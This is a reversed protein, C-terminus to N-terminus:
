PRPSESDPSPGEGPTSELVLEDGHVTIKLDYSAAVARAFSRSDGIRFIGGIPIAAAAPSAVTVKIKNYRSFEAAAEGLPTHDFILQGRMWSTAKEVSAADVTPRVHPRARLRQGANLVTVASDLESAPANSPGAPAVAVRGEILTVTIEDNSTQDRRVTFATGLAVVKREGVTVVFPRREHAVQFYAEGSKLVVSRTDRDYQVLLRSDTNLEVRTGDELNLTRQEGVATAVGSRYSYQVVLGLVILCLATVAFIPKLVGLRGTKRAIPRRPVRRPLGATENWVETAAEWARANLPDAAIWRLLGGEIEANREPSHLLAMWAAADAQARMLALEDSKSTLTM